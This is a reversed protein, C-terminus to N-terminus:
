TMIVNGTINNERTVERVTEQNFKFIVFITIMIFLKNSNETSKSLNVQTM